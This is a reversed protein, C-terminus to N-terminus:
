RKKGLYNYSYVNAPKKGLQKEIAESLQKSWFSSNVQELLTVKVKQSSGGGSFNCTVEYEHMKKLNNKVGVRKTKRIERKSKLYKLGV